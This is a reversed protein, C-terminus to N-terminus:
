SITSYNFRLSVQVLVQESIQRGTLSKILHVLTPGNTIDKYLDQVPTMMGSLKLVTNLWRTFVRKQVEEAKAAVFIDHCKTQICKIDVFIDQCKFFYNGWLIIAGSIM